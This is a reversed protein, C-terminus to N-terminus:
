GYSSPAAALRQNAWNRGSHDARRAPKSLRRIPRLWTTLCRIKIGGNPPELGGAGALRDPRWSSVYPYREFRAAGCRKASIAQDGDASLPRRPRWELRRDGPGNKPTENKISRQFVSPQNEHSVLLCEHTDSYNAGSRNACRQSSSPDLKALIHDPSYTIGGIRFM